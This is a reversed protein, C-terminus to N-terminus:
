GATEPVVVIGDQFFTRHNQSYACIRYLGMCAEFLLEIKRKVEEAIRIFLHQLTESGPALFLHVSLSIFAYQPRGENEILVPLDNLDKWLYTRGVV